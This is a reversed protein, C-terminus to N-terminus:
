DLINPSIGWSVFPIIRMLSSLTKQFLECDMTSIAYPTNQSIFKFTLLKNSNSYSVADLLIPSKAKTFDLEEASISQEWKQQPQKNSEKKVKALPEQEKYLQKFIKGNDCFNILILDFGNLLEIIKKRTVFFDLRESYNQHNITFM